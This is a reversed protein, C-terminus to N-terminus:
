LSTTFGFDCTLADYWKGTMIKMAHVTLKTNLRGSLFNTSMYPAVSLDFDKPLITNAFFGMPDVLDMFTKNPFSVNLLVGLSMEKSGISLNESYFNLSMGLTSDILMIENVTEQPLNYASIVLKANGIIFRPEILVYMNSPGFGIKGSTKNFPANYLGAQIFLSPTYNNGVLLTTGAHWYITDVAFIVDEGKYKNAIPTGLGVALDWTLYRYVCAFRADANFVFYKEDEHNVYIYTGLAIPANNLKIVDSIGLGFHPYLISGSLGLWSETLKSAVPQIGFYRQLFVDSGVPDYTGMFISFYNAQTEIRSRFILSIEDVKFKADTSSFLEDSIFDKTDISFELHSWVNESFNFQGQVFAQLTLDPDYKEASPTSAYQLKAGSYGSFSAAAWLSGTLLVTILISSFLKKAKM